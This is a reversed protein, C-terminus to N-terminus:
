TPLPGGRRDVEVAAPHDRLAALWATAAPQSEPDPQLEPAWAPLRVALPMAALDCLLPDPGGLLWPGPTRALMRELPRWRKVLTARLNEVLNPHDFREDLGFSQKRTSLFFNTTLEDDVWRMLGRAQARAVPDTPWLWQGYGVEEAWECIATSQLVAVGGVELVPVTRAPNLEALRSPRNLPDIEVLEVEVQKVALAIRAKGAFPSLQWSWLRPPDIM